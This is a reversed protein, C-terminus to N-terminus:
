RREQRMSYQVHGRISRSYLPSYVKALSVCQSVSRLKDMYDEDRHHREGSPNCSGRLIGLTVYLTLFM